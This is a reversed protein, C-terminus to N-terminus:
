VVETAEDVGAGAEGAGGENKIEGLPSFLAGAGAGGVRSPGTGVCVILAVLGGELGGSGTSSFTTILNSGITTLVGM